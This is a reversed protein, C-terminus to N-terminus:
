TISSALPDIGSSNMQFAQLFLRIAESDFRDLAGHAQVDLFNSM